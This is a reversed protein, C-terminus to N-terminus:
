SVTTTSPLAYLRLSIKYRDGSFQRAYPKIRKEYSGAMATIFAIKKDGNSPAHDIVKLATPIAGRAVPDADTAKGVFAIDFPVLKYLTWLGVRKMQGGEGFFRELVIVLGARLLELQKLAHFVAVENQSRIHVLAVEFPTHTPFVQHLEGERAPDWVHNQVIGLSSHQTRNRGLSKTEFVHLVHSASLLAKTELLDALVRKGGADGAYDGFALWLGDKAV